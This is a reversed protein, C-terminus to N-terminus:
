RLNHRILRDGNPVDDRAAAVNGELVFASARWRYRSPRGISKARFAISVSHRRFEVRASGTRNKDTCTEVRFSKDGRIAIVNYECDRDSNTSMFLRAYQLKGVVTVTHKLRRGAHGATAEVIDADRKEVGPIPIQIVADGRPDDVTKQDGNAGTAIVAAGLVVAAVVVLKRRVKGEDGRSRVTDAM